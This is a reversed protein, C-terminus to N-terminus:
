KAARKGKKIVVKKVTKAVTKKAVPKVTKKETTKKAKKVKKERKIEAAKDVFEITAIKAMDGRRQPLSIIRTFGSKRDKTTVQYKEILSVLTEKDNGLMALLRRRTSLEDKKLLTMVRDVQGQIAKAKAKTTTIKGSQVMARILSRFLAKRAGGGRSLKAGYVKKLM